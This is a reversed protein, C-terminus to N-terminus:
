GASSFFLGRLLDMGREVNQYARDLLARRDEPDAPQEHLLIYLSGKAATLSTRVERAVGALEEGKLQYQQSLAEKQVELESVRNHLADFERDLRAALLQYTEVMAQFAQVVRKLDEDM